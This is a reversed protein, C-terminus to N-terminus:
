DCGMLSVWNSKVLYMFSYKECTDHMVMDVSEIM